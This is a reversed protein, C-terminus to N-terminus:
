LASIVQYALDFYHLYITPKMVLSNKQYAKVWANTKPKMHLLVGYNLWSAAQNGKLSLM